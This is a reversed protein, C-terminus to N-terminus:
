KNKTCKNRQHRLLADRRAFTGGCAECKVRVNKLHSRLHRKFDAERSFDSAGCKKCRKKKEHIKKHLLLNELYTYVNGCKDCKFEHEHAMRHANFNRRSKAVHPCDDYECPIEQKVPFIEMEDETFPREEIIESNSPLPEPEDESSSAREIITKSASPQFVVEDDSAIDIVPYEGVLNVCNSILDDVTMKIECQHALDVCNDILSNVISAIENEDVEYVIANNDFSLEDYLIITDEEFVEVYPTYEYNEHMEANNPEILETIEVVETLKPENTTNSGEIALQEDRTQQSYSYEGRDRMEKEELLRVSIAYEDKARAKELADDKLNGFKTLDPPKMKAALNNALADAKAIPTHYIWYPDKNMFTERAKLIKGRETNLFSRIAVHKCRQLDNFSVWCSKWIIIYAGETVDEIQKQSNNGEKLLEILDNKEIWGIVNEVEFIPRCFGNDECDEGSNVDCTKAVTQKRKRRRSTMPYRRSKKPPDDKWVPAPSGVEKHYKRVLHKCNSCQDLTLYDENWEVFFVDLGVIWDTVAKVQSPHFDFDIGALNDELTLLENNAM